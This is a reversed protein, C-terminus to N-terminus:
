WTLICYTSSQDELVPVDPKKKTSAKSEARQQACFSSDERGTALIMKKSDSIFIILNRAYPTDVSM